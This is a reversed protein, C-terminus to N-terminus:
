AGDLNSYDSDQCLVNNGAVHWRLIPKANCNYFPPKHAGATVAAGPRGPM